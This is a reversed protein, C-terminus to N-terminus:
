DLLRVADGLEANVLDIHEPTSMERSYRDWIFALGVLILLACWAAIEGQVHHRVRYLLGVCILLTLLKFCVLSLSSGTSRVLLVVLPNAELLGAGRMHTLTIVLDALSLVVVGALLV